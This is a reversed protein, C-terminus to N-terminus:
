LGCRPGHTRGHGGISRASLRRSTTKPEAYIHAIGWRDTIIEVPQSLGPLHLTERQAQPAPAGSATVLLLILLTPPLPNPM